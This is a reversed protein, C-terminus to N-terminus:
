KIGKWTTKDRNHFEKHWSEPDCSYCLFKSTLMKYHKGCKKCELRQKM